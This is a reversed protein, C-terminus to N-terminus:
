REDEKWGSVQFHHGSSWCGNQVMLNGQPHFGRAVALPFGAGMKERSIVAGAQFQRSKSM